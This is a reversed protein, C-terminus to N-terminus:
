DAYGTRGSRGMEYAHQTVFKVPYSIKIPKHHGRNDGVHVLYRTSARWEHNQPLEGSGDFRSTTEVAYVDGQRLVRKGAAKAEKVAAPTIWDLAERISGVTGPVRVAWDGADDSGCLYALAVHRSGFRRSYYRWGEAKMLVFGNAKEAIHLQVSSKDSTIETEGGRRQIENVWRQTQAVQYRSNLDLVKKQPLLKARERRIRVIATRSRHPIGAADLAQVLAKVDRVVYENITLQTM